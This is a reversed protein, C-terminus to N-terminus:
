NVGVTVDLEIDVAEEVELVRDDDSWVVSLEDLEDVAEGVVADVDVDLKVKDVALKEEEVELEDDVLVVLVVVALLEGVEDVEEVVLGEEEEKV